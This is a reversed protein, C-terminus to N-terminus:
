RIPRIGIERLANDRTEDIRAAEKVDVEIHEALGISQGNQSFFEIGQQTKRRTGFFSAGQPPIAYEISGNQSGIIRIPPRGRRVLDGIEEATLERLAETM